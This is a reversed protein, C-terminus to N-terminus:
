EGDKKDFIKLVEEWQEDSVNNDRAKRLAVRVINKEMIYEPLDSPVSNEKELAALDLMINREADSLKLIKAIEELHKEPPYRRGKEIDSMYAPAIDLMSALGRLTIGQSKRKEEVFKGFSKNSMKKTVWEIIKAQM